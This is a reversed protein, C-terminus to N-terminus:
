DTGCWAHQQPYSWSFGPHYHINKEHYRRLSFSVHCSFKQSVASATPDSLSGDKRRNTARATTAPSMPSQTIVMPLVHYSEFSLQLPKLFSLANMFPEVKDHM